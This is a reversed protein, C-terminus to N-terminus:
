ELRLDVWVLRHRSARLALAHDPAGKPPWFVGADLVTLGAAPLVYDVRMNGPHPERWDATDLAPDGLDGETAAEIGGESKPRPDQLAPHALLAQMVERRGDGDAPDLNSGGILVFPGTPPPGFDGRLYALWLANEDHNRKGNRDEAGDFVPPGAQYALLTLSQGEPLQLPLSWHAVTSLRQVKLAAASPFLKGSDHVPLLANPFDAWLLESFDRLKAKDVPFRSLLALGKQGAFYGFGQADHPTQIAGDGNMDHPLALGSNPPLAFAHAYSHAGLAANFANLARLETDYDFGALLLVDPRVTLLIDRVASIQADEGKRIDRLLLGPGKRSLDASFFAVRIDAALAPAALM